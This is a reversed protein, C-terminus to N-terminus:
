SADDVRMMRKLEGKAVKNLAARPLDSLFEIARPVKFRALREMCFAMIQAKLEEENASDAVVFAVPVEGYMESTRGVVACERVGDVQAIVGEIEAASINEGGCKLIDSARSEFYFEGDEDLRVFDGTAFWGEGDFVGATAAENNFYELFLSVGREGRIHLAGVGNSLPNGSADRLELEYAPSAYGMSMFAHDAGFDSVIGPAVTETMGWWGLVKVGFRKEVGPHAVGLGWTRYAHQSPAPTELLARLCFPVMSTRTCQHKLSVPWFRRASFKPQLVVRAGAWLAPLVSYTQANTHFFPLFVLSCDDRELRQYQASTRAGWVGNGHSWLVAKPAGTTGSTFQISLPASWDRRPSVDLEPTLLLEDFSTACDSGIWEARHGIVWLHRAFGLAEVRDAFAADAVAWKPRAIEVYPTLETATAASNVTVAVSGVLASAFWALLAQPSNDAQILIREGREIGAAIFGSAVCKVDRWFEGYTWTRAEGEFPEWILFTANGFRRARDMLIWPVDKGVVAASQGVFM